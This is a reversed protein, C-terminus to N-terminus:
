RGLPLIMYMEKDIEVRVGAVSKWIFRRGASTPEMEAWGLKIMADRRVKDALDKSVWFTVYSVVPEADTTFFYVVRDFPKGNLKVEFSSGENGSGTRLLGKPYIQKLNRAATGIKAGDYERPYPKGTTFVSDVDASSSSNDRPKQKASVVRDAESVLKIPQKDAYKPTIRDHSRGGGIVGALFLMQLVICLTGLVLTTIRFASAPTNGAKRVRRPPTSTRSAAMDVRTLEGGDETESLIMEQQRRKNSVAIMIRAENLGLLLKRETQLSSPCEIKVTTQGTVKLPLGVLKETDVGDTFTRM